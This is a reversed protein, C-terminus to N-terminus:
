DPCEAQLAIWMSGEVYSEAGQDSANGKGRAILVTKGQDITWKFLNEVSVRTVEAGDPKTPISGQFAVLQEVEFHTDDPTVATVAKCILMPTYSVSDNFAFRRRRALPRNNGSGARIRKIADATAAVDGATLGYLM